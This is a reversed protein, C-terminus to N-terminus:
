DLWSWTPSSPRSGLLEYASRAMLPFSPSTLEGRMRTAARRDRRRTALDPTLTRRNGTTTAVAEVRSEGDRRVITASSDVTLENDSLDIWQLADLEARRWGAVAALRLAVGAAADVDDAAAIAARVDAATMTALTASPQRLVALSARQEGGVGVPAGARARCAVRLPSRPDRGGGNGASVSKAAEGVIEVPKM